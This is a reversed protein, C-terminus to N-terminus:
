VNTYSNQNHNKHVKEWEQKKALYVWVYSVEVGPEGVIPHYGMPVTSFTHDYIFWCADVASGNYWLGKGLQVARKPENKLLYFFVEEFGPEPNTEFAHPLSSWTGLNTHKTIGLRMTPLPGGPSLFHYVDRKTNGEGPTICIADSKNVTYTKGNYSCVVKDIDGDKLYVEAKQGNAEFTLIDDQGNVKLDKLIKENNWSYM